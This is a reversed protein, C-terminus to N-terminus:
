VIADRHQGAQHRCTVQQNWKNRQIQSCNIDASILVFASSNVEETCNEGKQPMAPTHPESCNEVTCAIAM